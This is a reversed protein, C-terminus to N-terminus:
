ISPGIRPRSIIEGKYKWGPGRVKVKAEKGIEARPELQYDGSQEDTLIFERGVEETNYPEFGMEELIRLLNNAAAMIVNSQPSFEGPEQERLQRLRHYENFFIDIAFRSYESNLERFVALVSEDRTREKLRAMEKRLFENEQQAIQLQLNLQEPALIEEMSEIKLEIGVKTLRM